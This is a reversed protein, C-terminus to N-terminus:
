YWLAKNWFLSKANALADYQTYFGTTNFVLETSSSGYMPWNPKDGAWKTNPNGSLVFSLMYKQMMVAVTANVSTSGGPGGAGITTTSNGSTTSNGGITVGAPADGGAGGGGIAAASQGYFYYSQDTGHTAAGIAVEANWTQNKLASTAALNHATLDFSQRMDVCQLGVSSYDSAPYLTLAEEIADDSIGPFFVRLYDATTNYGSVAQSNDEHLEHTIVFPGTFNFRQQYFQAEYTDAVFDGDVRPQFQYNYLSSINSAASQLTTFNVGRMCDIHGGDCGVTTSVNQWFAEAQHHGAGPVFGPSMVYAREFLQEARGAYRTMQFLTQSAGASFGSATVQNPDGGFKSIYKKVWKFAHEVDYLGVNSTGGEHLLTPGNAIGTMGLRYNYAVFIFDQTINFLGEPTNGTKSGGTFGGGYTFVMVPLKKTGSIPPAYIDMFLCDESSACDVSADALSGTSVSTDKLPWQPPAFRLDGTPPAAFRINQYKYYGVTTNGSVAQVTSYDLAVSPFASSTSSNTSAASAKAVLLPLLALSATPLHM